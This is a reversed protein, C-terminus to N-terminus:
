AQVFRCQKGHLGNLPFNHWIIWQKDRPNIIILAKFGNISISPRSTYIKQWIAQLYDNANFVKARHIKLKWKAYIVIVLDPM